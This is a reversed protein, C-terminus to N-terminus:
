GLDTIPNDSLDVNVPDIFVIIDMEKDELDLNGMEVDRLQMPKLMRIGTSDVGTNSISLHVLRPCSHIIHKISKNTLNKCNMLDLHKLNQLNTLKGIGADHIPTAELKLVELTGIENIYRMSDDGVSTNILSLSTLPLNAISEIGSSTIQTNNELNLEKINTDQLGELDKDTLTLDAIWRGDESRGERSLGKLIGPIKKRAVTRSTTSKDVGNKGKHTRQSTNKSQTEYLCWMGPALILLIILIPKPALKGSSSKGNAVPEGSVAKSSAEAEILAAAFAKISPYRDDPKNSLAKSIVPALCKTLEPEDDRQPLVPPAGDLRSRLLDVTQKGGDAPAGHLMAFIVHALSYVDSREDAETGRMQEPSMYLLSGVPQGPRTLRWDTEPLDLIRALGFDLIRVCGDEDLMINGPKLDRHIVSNAHAHELASCIQAAIELTETVAFRGQREIISDIDDGNVVEMVLYPEGTSTYGFDLVQVVNKHKLKSVAKAEQQFRMVATASENSKPLLKIAVRKDLLTDQASVVRGMGGAGIFVFNCYREKLEPPLLDEDELEGEAM